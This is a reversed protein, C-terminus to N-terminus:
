FQHSLGPPFVSLKEWKTPPSDKWTFNWYCGTDEQDEFHQVWEDEDIPGFAYVSGDHFQVIGKGNEPNWGGQRFCRGNDSRCGGPTEGNPM